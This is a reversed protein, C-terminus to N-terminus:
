APDLHDDYLDVFVSDRPAAQEGWLARASFRVSYCHQPKDGLGYANIDMFGFVGHDRNITGVKGRPM